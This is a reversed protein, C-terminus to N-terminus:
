QVIDGNKCKIVTGKPVGAKNGKWAWGEAKDEILWHDDESLDEQLTTWQNKTGKYRITLKPPSTEDEMGMAVFACVGISTVSEPITIEKIFILEAFAFNGISTINNPINISEIETCYAFASDGIKKVTDPIKVSTIECGQFVGNGIETIGEPIEIKEPPTATYGVLKTGDIVTMWKPFKTTATNKNTTDDEDACRVIGENKLGISGKKIANWQKKTGRYHLAELRDCLAFARDGISVVSKPVSVATLSICGYFAKSGINEVGEQMSVSSITQNESFAEAGINKVTGPLSVTKIYCKNFAKEGISEVGKQISVATLSQCAFFAEVGISKVSGPIVVTSINYCSIFAYDGISTVTNPISVSNLKKLLYFASNGIKTVGNPIVLSIVAKLDPVDNLTIVKSHYVLQRDNDMETWQALTGKYRLTKINECNIFTLNKITKVSAPITVSELNKCGDFVNAAIETVGDPIVLNAPLSKKDCGTIVTGNVKLYAPPPSPLDAACLGFAMTMSFLMAIMKKKLNM